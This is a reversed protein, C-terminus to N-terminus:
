VSGNMNKNKIGAFFQKQLFTCKALIFIRSQPVSGGCAMNIRPFGILVASM